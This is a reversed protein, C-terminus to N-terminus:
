NEEETLEPTWEQRQVAYVSRFVLKSESYCLLEEILEEDENSAKNILESLSADIQESADFDFAGAGNWTFSGNEGDKFEWWPSPRIKDHGSSSTSKSPVIRKWWSKTKTENDVRLYGPEPDVVVLLEKLDPVYMRIDSLAFKGGQLLAVPVALRTVDSSVFLPLRLIDKEHLRDSPETHFEIWLHAPVYLADLKPNFPRKFIPYGDHGLGHMSISTQQKDVWALAISRSEHNVFLLPLRLVVDNLLELHYHFDYHVRDADHLKSSKTLDEPHWCGKKHFYFTPGLDDLLLEEWVQNRLEAPLRSFLPFTCKKSLKETMIPFSNLYIIAAALSYREGFNWTYDFFHIVVRSALGLCLRESFSIRALTKSTLPEAYSL